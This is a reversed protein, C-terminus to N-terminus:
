VVAFYRIHTERGAHFTGKRQPRSYHVKGEEEYSTRGKGRRVDMKYRIGPYYLSQCPGGIGVLVTSVVPEDTSFCCAPWTPVQRKQPQPM